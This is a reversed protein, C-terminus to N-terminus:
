ESLYLELKTKIDALASSWDANGRRYDLMGDSVTLNVEALNLLVCDDFGEFMAKVASVEEQTMPYREVSSGALKGSATMMKELQTEVGQKSLPVTYSASTYVREAIFKLLEFGQQEYASGSIVAGYVHSLATIAESDYNTVPLVRLASADGSYRFACLEPYLFRPASNILDHSFALDPAANAVFSVVDNGSANQFFADMQTRLLSSFNEIDQVAAENPIATRNESDILPVRMSAFLSLDEYMTTSMMSSYLSKASPDFDGRLADLLEKGTYNEPITIGHNELMQETSLFFPVSFALPLIYQKRDLQGATLASTYYDESSFAATTEDTIDAFYGKEALEMYDLSTFYTSLIVDPGGKGAMLETQVVEDMEAETEFVKVNLTVDNSRQFATIRDAIDTMFVSENSYYVTMEKSAGSCGGILCIGVLLVIVLLIATAKKM